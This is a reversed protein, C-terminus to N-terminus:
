VNTEIVFRVYNPLYFDCADRCLISGRNRPRGVCLGTVILVLSVRSLLLLPLVVVVALVVVVVAVVVVVVVVVIIIIYTTAANLSDGCWFVV